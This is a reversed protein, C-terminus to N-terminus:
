EPGVDTDESSSEAQMARGFAIAAAKLSHLLRTIVDEDFVAPQLIEVNASCRLDDDDISVVVLKFTAAVINAQKYAAALGTAGAVTYFHPLMLRVYEPDESDVYVAFANGEHRFIIATVTGVTELRQLRWGGDELVRRWAEAAAPLQQTTAGPSAVM